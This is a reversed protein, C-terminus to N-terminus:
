KASPLVLMTPLLDTGNWGASISCQRLPRCIPASTPVVLRTPTFAAHLLVHQISVGTVILTIDLLASFAGGRFYNLLAEGYSRHAAS